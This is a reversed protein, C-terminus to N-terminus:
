GNLACLQPLTNRLRIIHKTNFLGKLTNKGKKTVNLTLPIFSVLYSPALPIFVRSACFLISQGDHTRQYFM